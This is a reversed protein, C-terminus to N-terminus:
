LDYSPRKDAGERVQREHERIRRVQEQEREYKQREWAEV